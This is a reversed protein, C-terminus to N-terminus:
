YNREVVFEALDHLATRYPSEPVHNLASNAKLAHNKAANATYEIAKTSEIIGLISDLQECSGTEIATRILKAEAPTGQRLAHILPLTPKGESLDTGINKGTIETSANYDLADDILQYAIGLNMGYQQMADFAKDNVNSIAPGLQSGVEFLKGTKRQIVEYYAAESVYPDNCNALQLIEGEAILNTADAFINMVRLNQLKVILQFARSYLFDGVLVSAENGWITHATEQGRRLSSNDVVDDHLLTATHILEIAAALDIHQENKHGCARASLLVLLPRIRKGGCNLIYQVVNNILPIHSELETFIFKDTAELDNQVLSRISDLPM